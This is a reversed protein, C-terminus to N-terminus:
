DKKYFETVYGDAKLLTDPMWEPPTTMARCIEELSVTAPCEIFLEDHVHGCINFGPLNKMANM